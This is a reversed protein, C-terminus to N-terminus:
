FPAEASALFEREEPTSERGLAANRNPFRGFRDIGAPEGSATPVGARAFPLSRADGHAVVMM